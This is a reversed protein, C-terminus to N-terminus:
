ESADINYNVSCGSKMDWSSSSGISASMNLASLSGASLQSAVRGIEGMAQVAIKSTELVEQLALRAEEMAVNASIQTKQLRLGTEKAAVDGKATEGQVEASFLSTKSTFIKTEAEVRAIEAQLNTTYYAAQRTWTELRLKQVELDFTGKTREADVESKYADVRAAFAQTQAKYVEVRGLEGQIAQGYAKWETEYAGVNASYAQVQAKYIEVKALEGQLRSNAAEVRTKYVNVETMVGDLQAKYIEVDQRNLEGLLKKGELVIKYAELKSLEVQLWTKFFEAYTQWATLETKYVELKLAVSKYQVDFLAAAITRCVDYLKLFREWYQGELAIGQTIAFRLNEIELKASEIWIERNLAAKKDWAQNRLVMIKADLVGAPLAFGRSLWDETAQREAQLATKDEASFARDRMATEVAVPIGISEGSLLEGLRPCLNALAPCQAVFEAARDGVLAYQQNLTTLFDNDLSVDPAEPKSSYLDRFEAVIGDVDIEPPEPLDLDRLEPVPPLALNLDDPYVPQTLAGPGAPRDVSLAGPRVPYALTPLSATFTPVQNVSLNVGEFGPPVPPADPLTFTLADAIPKVPMVFDPLDIEMDPNNGLGSLNLPSSRPSFGSVYTHEISRLADMATDYANKGYGFLKDVQGEILSGTNNGGFSPCSAM